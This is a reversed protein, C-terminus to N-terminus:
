IQSYDASVLVKDKEAIFAPKIIEPINQLNPSSSSIRGTATGLSNYKTHIREEAELLPEIYTSKIKYLSRYTKIKEELFKFKKAQKSSLINFETEAEIYIEQELNYLKQDQEKKLKRLYEQNLLVGRREMKKLIPDLLRELEFIEESLKSVPLRRILSRFGFEQLVKVAEEHSYEKVLCDKLNFKIPVDTKNTALEKSFRAQDEHAELKKRVSDKISDLNDYVAEISPYKKLLEIATKEGIGPVGPINDSPDGRLGKFDAMQRPRLGDFRDKVRSQDYYIIEKVSKQPTYVITNDDVLQLSYLDGTVIINRARDQNKAITGILDDAEYGAKEIIPINLAKLIKKVLPFQQYIESKGKDRNAKYDDYMKHRFTPKALDFTAVIYEPNIERLISLLISTFGYVANVLRGKPDAMRPLAHYARHVLANGDVIILSSKSPM